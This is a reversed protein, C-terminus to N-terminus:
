QEKYDVKVPIFGRERYFINVARILHYYKRFRLVANNEIGSIAKRMRKGEAVFGTQGSGTISTAHVRFEAFYDKIHRIAGPENKLIQGCKMFFDYDLIFGLDEDFGGVSHHIRSTWFSSPQMIMLFSYLAIEFDWSIRPKAIITDDSYRVFYDGYLVQVEDDNNFHANVKHLTGNVYKDDSNLYAFIDGSAQKFGKNIAHAQGNDKESVWFKLYKEYKKIIEVSNDNSGGDIIIYELNSYGQSLVSDITEEIFAGQNYSPTVISIRKNKSM